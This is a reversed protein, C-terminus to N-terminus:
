RNSGPERWWRRKGKGHLVRMGSLGIKVEAPRVDRKVHHQDMRFDRGVGSVDGTQAGGGPRPKMEHFREAERKGRGPEATGSEIVPIGEIDADMGIPVGAEPGDAGRTEEQEAGATGAQVAPGGVLRAVRQYEAGFGPSEGVVQEGGMGFRDM